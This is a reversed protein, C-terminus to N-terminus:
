VDDALTAFHGMLARPQPKPVDMNKGFLFNTDFQRPDLLSLDLCLWAWEM